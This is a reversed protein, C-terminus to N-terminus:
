RTKRGQLGEEIERVIEECVAIPDSAGLIPRGVVILDAGEEIAKRPTETRQHDDKATGSPRIGPTMVVFERPFGGQRILGVEQPSTIVGDLGAAQVKRAMLLVREQLAERGQIGLLALDAEELLSTLLTVGLLLPPSFGEQEAIQRSAEVCEQMMRFGGSVHINFGFAELRTVEEASRAVTRPIDHFKLDLFFPKGQRRIMELLPPGLRIFLPTGVKFAGVRDKLKEVWAQAQAYNEVDLALILRDRPSLDAKLM